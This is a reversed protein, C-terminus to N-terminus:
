LILRTFKPESVKVWINDEEIKQMQEEGIYTIYIKRLNEYKVVLSANEKELIEIGNSVDNLQAKIIDPHEIEVIKSSLCGM